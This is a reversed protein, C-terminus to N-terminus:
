FAHYRIRSPLTHASSAITVSKKKAPHITKHITGNCKPGMHIIGNRVPLGELLRVIYSSHAITMPTQGKRNKSTPDAGYELLIEVISKYGWKSAFHLATDGQLNM